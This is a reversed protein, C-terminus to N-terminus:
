TERAFGRSLVRCTMRLVADMRGKSKAVWSLTEKAFPQPMTLVTASRHKFIGSPLYTKIFSGFLTRKRKEGGTKRDTKRQQRVEGSTRISGGEELHPMANEGDSGNIRGQQERV